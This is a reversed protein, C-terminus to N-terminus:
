YVHSIQGNPSHVTVANKTPPKIESLRKTIEGMRAEDQPLEPHLAPSRLKERVSVSLVELERELSETERQEATKRNGAAIEEAAQEAYKTVIEDYTAM